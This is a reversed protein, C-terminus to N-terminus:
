GPQNRIESLRRAVYARETPEMGDLFPVFDTVAHDSGVNVLASAPGSTFARAVDAPAALMAVGPLTTLADRYRQEITARIEADSLAESLSTRAREVRDGSSVTYLPVTQTAM